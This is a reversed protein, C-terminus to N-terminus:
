DDCGCSSCHQIHDVSMSGFDRLAFLLHEAYGRAKCSRLDIEIADEDRGASTMACHQCIDVHSCCDSTADTDAAAVSCAEVGPRRAVVNPVVPDQRDM